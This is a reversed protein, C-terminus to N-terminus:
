DKACGDSRGHLVDRVMEADHHDRNSSQTSQYKAYTKRYRYQYKHRPLLYVFQVTSPARAPMRILNRGVCIPNTLFMTNSLMWMRSGTTYAISMMMDLSWKDEPWCRCGSICCGCVTSRCATVMRLTVPTSPATGGGDYNIIM